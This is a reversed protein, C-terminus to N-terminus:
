EKKNSKTTKESEEKPVETAPAETAPAETAPVEMAKASSPKTSSPETKDKIPKKVEQQDRKRTPETSVEPTESVKKEFKKSKKAPKLKQLIMISAQATVVKNNTGYNKSLVNKVGALNLIKRLAGGAIVGTGPSAPMIFLHASKYKLKVEHPISDKDTIPVKILSNKAKAVAKKIGSVVETAKGIGIGVRGKRDGIAVICRFRLRRGGKVVRTVRDIQLVEEDFEKPEKERRHGRGRSPNKKSM